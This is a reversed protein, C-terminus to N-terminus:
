ANTSESVKKSVENIINPMEDTLIKNTTEKVTENNNLVGVVGGAVGLLAGAASIGIGIWGFKNM